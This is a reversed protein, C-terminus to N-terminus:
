QITLTYTGVETYDFGSVAVIYDKGAELAVTLRADLNGASDDDTGLVTASLSTGSWSDIRVVTLYSDFSTSTQFTVNRNSAVRVRWGDYYATWSSSLDAGDCDTSAISGTATQGVTKDGRICLLTVLQADLTPFTVGAPGTSDKSCAVIAALAAAWLLKRMVVEV